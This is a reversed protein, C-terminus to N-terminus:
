CKDVVVSITVLREDFVQLDTCKIVIIAEYIIIKDDFLSRGNEICKSLRLSCLDKCLAYHM